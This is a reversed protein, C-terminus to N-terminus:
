MGFVSYLVSRAQVAGGVETLMQNGIIDLTKLYLCDVSNALVYFSKIFNSGKCRKEIDTKM